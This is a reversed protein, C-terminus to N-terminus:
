ILRVLGALLDLIGPLLLDFTLIFAAVVGLLWIVSRTKASDVQRRLEEFGQLYPGNEDNVFPQTHWTTPEEAFMSFHAVARASLINPRALLWRRLRSSALVTVTPRKRGVTISAPNVVVVLPTVTVPRGTVGSLLQSAREAEHLAVRLHDHKQGAVMFTSGAVFVRRDAHNRTSVTFIGAPGLVIHDIDARGSGVPVAHLVTWGAGLQSLVRAVEIEGLAGHYWSRAAPDLPSRGLVRALTGLPAAKQQVALCERIVSYAPGRSRLSLPPGVPPPQDPLPRAPTSQVPAPRVPAPPAVSEVHDREALDTM